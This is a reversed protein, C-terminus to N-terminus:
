PRDKMALLRWAGAEMESGTVGTSHDRTCISCFGIREHSITFCGLRAERVGGAMSQVQALERDVAEQSM